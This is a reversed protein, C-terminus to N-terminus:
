PRHSFRVGMFRCFGRDISVVARLGPKGVLKGYAAVGPQFHFRLSLDDGAAAFAIRDEDPGNAWVTQHATRWGSEEARALAQHAERWV